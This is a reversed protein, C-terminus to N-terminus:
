SRNRKGIRAVLRAIGPDDILDPFYEEVLEPSQIAIAIMLLVQQAVRAPALGKEVAYERLESRFKSKRIVALIQQSTRVGIENLAILLLRESGPTVTPSEPYLMSVAAIMRAADLNETLGQKRALRRRQTDVVRARISRLQRFERDLIELTGAVSALLRAEEKPFDIASKYAIEHEIEAWAHELISRVQIEFCLNRLTRYEMNRNRPSKLRAVLHVSRYGFENPGLLARKDMSNAADISFEKKLSTVVDDVTDDFYTIIRVGLYDTLEKEPDEYRKSLLKVRLSHCDKERASINHIQGRHSALLDQVLRQLREAAMRYDNHQRAYRELFRRNVLNLGPM